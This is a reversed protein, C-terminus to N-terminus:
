IREVFNRLLRLGSEGSKEPHFQTGLIVGSRVMACYNTENYTTEALIHEANTPRIIYSHVFYMFPTDLGAFLEPATNEEAPSIKQWGIIIPVTAKQAITSFHVVEGPILGLGDHEGFEHGKELFLQAGLCIGLMPVNRTAAEKLTEILNRVRLGEMGAAFAGVGPLVIADASAILEKEESITVNCLPSFARRLSGLNGVGYDIIVVNKM